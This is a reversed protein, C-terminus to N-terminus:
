SRSSRPSVPEYRCSKSSERPIRQHSFLLPFSLHAFKCICQRCHRPSSRCFLIFSGCLFKPLILVVIHFVGDGRQFLLFAFETVVFLCKCAHIREACPYILINVNFGCEATQFVGKRINVIADIVHKEARKLSPNVRCSFPVEYFSMRNISCFMYSMCLVM